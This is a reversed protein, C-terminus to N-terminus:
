NQKIIINPKELAQSLSWEARDDKNVRVKEVRINQKKLAKIIMDISNM